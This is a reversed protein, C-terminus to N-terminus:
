SNEGTIVGLTQRVAYIPKGQTEHYTRVMAEGLLGMIILQVGIMILLAALIVLPRNGIAQNFFLRITTLYAGLISGTTLTTM